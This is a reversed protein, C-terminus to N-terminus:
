KGCKLVSCFSRRWTANIKDCLSQTETYFNRNEILGFSTENSAIDNHRQFGLELLRDLLAPFSLGSIEVTESVHQHQSVQTTNIENLYFKGTEQEL